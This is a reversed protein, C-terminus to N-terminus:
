CFYFLSQILWGFSPDRFRTLRTLNFGIGLLIFEIGERLVIAKILIFAHDVRVRELNPYM